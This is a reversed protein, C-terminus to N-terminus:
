LLAILTVTSPGLSGREFVLLHKTSICDWINNWDINMQIILSKYKRTFILFIYFTWRNKNVTNLPNFSKWIFLRINNSHRKFNQVCMCVCVILCILKFSSQFGLWKFKGYRIRHRFQTTVILTSEGKQIAYTHM